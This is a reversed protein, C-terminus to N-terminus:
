TGALKMLETACADAVEDIPDGGGPMTAWGHEEIYDGRQWSSEQQLATLHTMRAQQTESKFKAVCIPTLASLVAQNKQRAAMEQATGSTVVWGTGFGVVLVLIAGCIGGFIGHKLWKRNQM